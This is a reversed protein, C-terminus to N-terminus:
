KRGVIERDQFLWYFLGERTLKGGHAKLDEVLRRFEINDRNEAREYEGKLGKVKRWKIRSPEWRWLRSRLGGAPAPVEQIRRRFNVTVAEMGNCFDIIAEVLESIRKERM